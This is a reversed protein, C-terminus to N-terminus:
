GSRRLLCGLVADAVPDDTHRRGSAPAAVTSPTRGCSAWLCPDRGPRLRLGLLATEKGTVPTRSRRLCVSELPLSAMAEPRSLKQDRSDGEHPRAKHPAFVM